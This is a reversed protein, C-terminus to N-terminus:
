GYYYWQTICLVTIQNYDVEQDSKERQLVSPQQPKSTPKYKTRIQCGLRTHQYKTQRLFQISPQHIQDPLHPYFPPYWLLNLLTVFLQALVEKYITFIMAFFLLSYITWFIYFPCLIKIYINEICNRIIARSTKLIFISSNLCCQNVIIQGPHNKTSRWLKRRISLAVIYHIVTLRNKQVNNDHLYNKDMM